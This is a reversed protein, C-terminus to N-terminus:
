EANGSSAAPRRATTLESKGCSDPRDRPGNRIANASTTAARSITATAPSSAGTMAMLASAM